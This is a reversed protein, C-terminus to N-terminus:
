RHKTSSFRRILAAAVDKEVYDMMRVYTRIIESKSVGTESHVQEITHWERDNFRVTLNNNRKEFM